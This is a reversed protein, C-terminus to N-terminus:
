SHGASLSTFKYAVLLLVTLNEAELSLASLLRTILVHGRALPQALVVRSHWSIDGKSQGSFPSSEPHQHLLGLRPSGLAMEQKLKLQFREDGHDNRPLIVCKSKRQATLFLDAM